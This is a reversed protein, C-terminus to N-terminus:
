TYMKCNMWFCPECSLSVYHLCTVACPSLLHKVSVGGGGGMSIKNPTHISLNIKNAWVSIELTFLIERFKWPREVVKVM